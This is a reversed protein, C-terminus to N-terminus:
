MQNLVHTTRECVELSVDGDPVGSEVIADLQDQLTELAAGAVVHFVNESM